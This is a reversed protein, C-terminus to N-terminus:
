KLKAYNIDHHKLIEKVSGSWVGSGFTTIIIEDTNRPNFTISQASSFPFEKCWLWRRGGDASFFLGHRTGGAFIIDTKDPHVVLSQWHEYTRQFGRLRAIDKDKLIHWWRKGGDKTYYIGGANTFGQPTASAVYIGNPDTPHFAIANAWHGLTSEKSIHEWTKGKDKSRWVGGEEKIFYNPDPARLGTILAYLDGTKPHFKLKYIHRNYGGPQGETLAWTKGEDYSVYVGSYDYEEHEGFISAYLTRKEPSSAPDIAISTAVQDPLGKKSKRNYPVEWTKGYDTSVVLGGKNYEVGPSILSVSLFHPIDHLTSTAAYIKGPIDPDFALDYFTNTWPSGTGSWAWTEGKDVSRAFAIDTYAIYERNEDFPDFYYGWVSTVELGVSKNRPTSDGDIPPLTESFFIEWTDGGNRSIFLEGQTSLMLLNPDFPSVDLGLISYSWHLDTQMWSQEVNIEQWFTEQESHMIFTTDWTKGADLTRILNPRDAKLGPNDEAAYVIQSQGQPILIKFIRRYDKTKSNWTKGLDHSSLIGQEDVAIYLLMKGNEDITGDFATVKGPLSTKGWTKGNDKSMALTDHNEIYFITNELGKFFYNPKDSIKEWTHGNGDWMGFDTSVLFRTGENNMPYFARIYTHRRDKDDVRKEKLWPSEPINKWTKGEDESMTLQQRANSIWLIKNKSLFVPPNAFHAERPARTWNLMIWSKGADESRYVGGMDCVTFYLNENYPSFVPNFFGGGGGIGRNKFLAEGSGAYVSSSYLAQTFCTFIILFLLLSLQSSCKKLITNKYDSLTAPTKM